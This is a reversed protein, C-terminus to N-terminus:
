LGFHTLTRHLAEAQREADGPDWYNTKFQLLWPQVREAEPCLGKEFVQSQETGFRLNRLAPELYNLQWAAYVGDGGKDRFMNVFTRWPVKGDASLRAAWTWYSHVYGEPVAQPVLGAHGAVAQSFIAAAHQRAGVLEEIRTLQALSVAACLESM